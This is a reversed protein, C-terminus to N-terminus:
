HDFSFLVVARGNAHTSQVRDALRRVLFGALSRQGEDSEMIEANTPRTAPLPLPAGAWSIRVELRFEDFSAAIELPGRPACGDM